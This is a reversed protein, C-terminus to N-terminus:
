ARREAPVAPVMIPAYLRVKSRERLLTTALSRTRIVYLRLDSEEQVPNSRLSIAELMWNLAHRRKQPRPHFFGRM